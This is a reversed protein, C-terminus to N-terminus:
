HSTPVYLWASARAAGGNGYGGTILVTGDGLRAAASFSGPLPSTPAGVLFANRSPDFVEVTGAGGALLIRGDLLAVLTGDHKFRPRQMNGLSQFRNQTPDYVEADGYMGRDDREDSGGAILVRGDPLAIGAHKHRRKTMSTAPSFVGRDPDYREASAYIEINERRGAHGGVVLVSGDRLRVGVHSERPVRMGGTSTFRHTAPDFLEASALFTWGTSVGGAFLVRGDNLPVAIHGSRPERMDPGPEFVGREPDYFETSALYSGSYGGAILVRGDALKTATHGARAMSPSGTRAFKRTGPDFMEASSGAADLGGVILIRGDSLTTSTHAARSVAMDGMSVLSGVATSSTNDSPENRAPGCVLVTLLATVSGLSKAHM